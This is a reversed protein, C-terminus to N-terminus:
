LNYKIFNEEIVGVSCATWKRKPHRCICSCVSSQSLDALARTTIWISTGHAQPFVPWQSWRNPLPVQATHGSSPHPQPLLTLLLLATSPSAILTLWYGGHLTLAPYIVHIWWWWNSLRAPLLLHVNTSSLPPHPQCPQASWITFYGSGHPFVLPFWHLIIIM